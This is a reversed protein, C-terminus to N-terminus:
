DMYRCGRGGPREPRAPEWRTGFGIVSALVEAWKAPGIPWLPASIALLGLGAMVDVDDGAGAIRGFLDAPAPASTM